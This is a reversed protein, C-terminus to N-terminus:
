KRLRTSSHILIKSKVSQHGGIADGRRVGKHRVVKLNEGTALALVQVFDAEFLPIDRLDVEVVLHKLDLILDLNHRGVDVKIGVRNRESGLAEVGKATGDRALLSAPLKAFVVVALFQDGQLVKLDSCREHILGRCFADLVVEGLKEKATQGLNLVGVDARDGVLDALHLGITSDSQGVGVVRATNLVDGEASLDGLRVDGRKCGRLAPEGVGGLGSFTRRGIRDIVELRHNAVGLLNVVRHGDLDILFGEELIHLVALPGDSEAILDSRSQKDGGSDVGICLCSGGGNSRGSGVIGDLSGELENDTGILDDEVLGTTTNLNPIVGVLLEDAVLQPGEVLVGIEHTRGALDTDLLVDNREARIRARDASGDEAAVTDNLVAVVSTSLILVPHGFESNQADRGTRTVHKDEM